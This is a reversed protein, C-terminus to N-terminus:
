LVTIISITDQVQRLTAATTKRAFHRAIYKLVTAVTAVALATLALQHQEDSLCHQAGEDIAVMRSPLALAILPGRTRCCFTHKVTRQHPSRFSCVLGDPVAHHRKLAALTLAGFAM